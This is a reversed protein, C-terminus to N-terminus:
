SVARLTKGWSIIEKGFKNRVADLAKQLDRHSSTEKEWPFLSLQRAPMLLDSFELVIRRVAIRRQFLRSFVPRVARYLGQDTEIAGPYLDNRGVASIGDAYRVELRFRGPARNHLRLNWGAEEVQLFLMAELRGLDIEDRDLTKAVAYRPVKRAPLVPAPDIGRAANLLRDATKGFVAALMGPPFSALQGITQINFGALRSTTVEGVGPLLAVPLPVLFSAESGPFICSLDGPEICSAAVQSVLKNSALGVRAHLGTTGALEKEIRWAIDPEPGFLRRTGTIDLFYSGPWTGEVLPSFRGIGETIDQHKGQYYYLDPPVVTLRRCIRRAHLVSMGESIGESGALRNVGQVASRDGPQALVLPRRKLEPHRMEEMAAYFDPIHLHVINHLRM